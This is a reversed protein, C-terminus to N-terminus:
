SALSKNCIVSKSFECGSLIPNSLLLLFVALLIGFSLSRLFVHSVENSDGKGFAQATLGTTGMRLFGFGWYIFSFIISGVAIAGLLAADGQNGIVFTDALGLLPVSANSLVIPWAIALVHARSLPAKTTM